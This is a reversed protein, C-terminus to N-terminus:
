VFKGDFSAGLEANKVLIERPKGGKDRAPREEELDDQECCIIQVIIRKRYRKECKLVQRDMHRM